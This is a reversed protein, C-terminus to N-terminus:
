KRINFVFKNSLYYSLVAGLAIGIMSVTSIFSLFEDKSGTEKNKGAKKRASTYRWAIELEIPWNMM